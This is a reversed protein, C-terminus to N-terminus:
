EIVLSKTFQKPQRIDSNDIIKLLYQGKSLNQIDIMLDNEGENVKNNKQIFSRGNMDIVQIKLEANKNAKYNLQVVEASPNPYFKMSLIGEQLETKPLNVLASKSDASNGDRDKAIVRWALQQGKSLRNINLFNSKTTAFVAWDSGNWLEVDYQNAGAVEKWTANFSQETLDYSELDTPEALAMRAGNPHAAGVGVAYFANTVSRVQQSNVGFLDTAAQIAGTRAGAYNTSSTMYVTEMRYTIKAADTMGISTVTYASGIDNTGSGGTVLLYFWYNLVGSNTHVGCYDNSQTPTGCNPNLWFSGGYTDPDSFQNPNSMSRFGLGNGANLDFDEGMTWTSKTPFYYQEVTAGWIDSLAENLAGSERQYVLNASFECVAHGLEHSCVDQSTLPDFSVGDGDGYTMVSGNWFANVYNNSYHIYSTLTAGANNYSNRNHVNKFYNFTNNAGLHADLASNDKATNAYEVWQNNADTFSVAQNYRTRNRLNLTQVLSNTSTTNRLRYSGNFSDTTASQSGSYRTAFTAPANAHYIRPQVHLVRGDNADVYIFDRRDSPATGYVDFKYALNLITRDAGTRLDEVWVLEGKPQHKGKYKEYYLEADETDWMFESAGSADKAIELAADEKLDAKAKHGGNGKKYDGTMTEIMGGREHSIYSGHEVKIGKFYQRYKAHKFGLADDEESELRFDDGSQANLVSKMVQAANTGFHKGKEFEIFTPTENESNKESKKVNNQAFSMSVTLGSILLALLPKKM